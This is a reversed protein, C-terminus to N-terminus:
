ASAARRTVRAREVEVECRSATGTGGRYFRRRLAGSVEVVDGDSWGRVSRRVRASWAACDVVDVTQRSGSTAAGRRVVLRWTWVEDGSPMERCVPAGSVRGTLVVENTDPEMNENM